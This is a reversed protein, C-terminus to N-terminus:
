SGEEELTNRSVVHVPQVRSSRKKKKRKEEKSRRAERDRKADAMPGVGSKGGHGGGSFKATPLIHDGNGSGDGRRTRRKGNGCMRKGCSVTSVVVCAAVVVAALAIGVLPFTGLM